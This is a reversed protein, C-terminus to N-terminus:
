PTSNNILALLAQLTEQSVSSNPNTTTTNNQVQLGQSVVPPQRNPCQHSIHGPQGCSYCVVGSNNNTNA